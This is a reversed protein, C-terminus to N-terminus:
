LQMGLLRGDSPRTLRTRQVFPEELGNPESQFKMARTGSKSDRAARWADGRLGPEMGHLFSELVGRAEACSPACATRFAFLESDPRSTLARIGYWLQSVIPVVFSEGDIDYFSWIVSRNGQLDVAVVERYTSEGVDVFAMALVSLGGQGLLSNGENVLERGQQQVAYGVAVAEIRHGERDEYAVHQESHAGVFVPRWTADAVPLPGHWANEGLPMRMARPTLDADDSREWLLIPLPGAVLATIAVLYATAAPAELRPARAEPEPLTRRTAVWVFAVLVIVFLVYGFELHRQSVIVNDMGSSYGIALLLIVRVWNTVLAVLAMSIFLGARRAFKAEELEGLLVAVALAQALFGVGSCALTVVFRAGNPFAFSAGSVTAPLGVLPAVLAVAHVTLEQLPVSLINWAPMAFYLYGIPVSVSRAVATGFAALVALWIVAPLMLLQLAQLGAKWFVLAAVSCPVLLLLAWPAAQVPESDTRDRARALLWLALAAVLIGHGGLSPEDIWYRWLAVAGPWYAFVGVAILVGVLVTTHPASARV